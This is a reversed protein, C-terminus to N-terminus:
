RPIFVLGDDDKSVLGSDRLRKVTRSVYGDGLRTVRKKCIQKHDYIECNPSQLVSSINRGGLIQSGNIGCEVTHIRPGGIEAIPDIDGHGGRIKPLPRSMM